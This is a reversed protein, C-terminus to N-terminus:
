VTCITVYLGVSPLAYTIFIKANQGDIQLKNHIHGTNIGTNSRNKILFYCICSNKRTIYVTCPNMIYVIIIM